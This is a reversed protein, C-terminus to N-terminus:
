FNARAVAPPQDGSKSRKGNPKLPPDGQTGFEIKGLRLALIKGRRIKLESPAAITAQDQPERLDIGRIEAGLAPHLPVISFTM